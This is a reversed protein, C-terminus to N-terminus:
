VLVWQDTSDERGRLGGLNRDQAAVLRCAIKGHPQCVPISCGGGVGQKETKQLNQKIKNKKALAKQQKSNMGCKVRNRKNEIRM